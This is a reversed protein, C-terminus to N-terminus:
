AKVKKYTMKGTIKSKMKVCFDAGKRYLRRVVGDKCKHTKETKVPTEKKVPGSM